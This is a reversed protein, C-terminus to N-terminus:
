DSEFGASCSSLSRRRGVGEATLTSSSKPSFRVLLPEPALFQSFQLVLANDKGKGRGKWRTPREEMEESEASKKNKQREVGGGGSYPLLLAVSTDAARVTRGAKEGV